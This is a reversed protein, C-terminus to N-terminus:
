RDELHKVEQITSERLRREFEEKTIPEDWSQYFNKRDWGDPDLIITNPYLEKKWEESTKLETM